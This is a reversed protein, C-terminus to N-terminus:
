RKLLVCDAVTRAANEGMLAEIIAIAFEGATGAGRSTILNGDVVVRGSTFVAGTVQRETGPYGTFRRGKLIGCGEHLVVAPAACIAAVLKGGEFHRVIFERAARSEALNKAGPMGGPVVVADFGVDVSADELVADAVVTIGRAGRVSRGGLGFLTVEVGARRLYDVPTLAEVEEFGEAILVCAKKM